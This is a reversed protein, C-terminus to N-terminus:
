STFGPAAPSDNAPWCQTRCGILPDPRGRPELLTLRRTAPAPLGRPRRLAQPV